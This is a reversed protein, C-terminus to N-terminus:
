EEKLIVAAEAKSAKEELLAIAENKTKLLSSLYKTKEELDTCARQSRLENLRIQSHKETLKVLNNSLEDPRSHM